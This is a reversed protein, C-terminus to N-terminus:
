VAGPRYYQPYDGVLLHNPEADEEITPFRGVPTLFRNDTRDDNVRSVEGVLVQGRGPEGWFKHYCRTPLTVSEGPQLRLVTGAPLVQQVGDTSITVPTDGLQETATSNWVQILLNGGGRNIIDEMKVFHFHEPTVQGERVIMIKEAYPKHNIPSGNRVTFLLLGVREFDGSGFDTIDWGLQAAPIEAVEPGKSRWQAPTWVAFPPLEFQHQRFFERSEQLYRNITSRKM